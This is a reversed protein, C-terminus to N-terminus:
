IELHYMELSVEESNDTRMLCCCIYHKLKRDRQRVM